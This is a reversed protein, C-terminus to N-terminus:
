KGAAAAPPPLAKLREEAQKAWSFQKYDKVLKEYQQRALDYNHRMEYIQGKHFLAESVFEPYAEFMVIIRSTNEDAAKFKELAQAKNGQKEYREALVLQCRVLGLLAALRAEPTKEQTAVETYMREASEYDKKRERIQAIKVKGQKGKDYWPFTKLVKIFEQEAEADKGERFLIDALGYTASAVAQPDSAFETLVRQYMEGAEQLASADKCADAYDLLMQSSLRVNPDTALAKKFAALAKEKEANKMLFMGESFTLQAQLAPNDVHRAVAKSFYQVAEESTMMRFRVLSFISDAVGEISSLAFESSPFNLMITECTAASELMTQKYVTRQADPLVTPHGMREAKQNLAQAILFLIEPAREQNPDAEFSLWLYNVAADFDELKDKAVWGLFFCAEPVYESQPFEAPLRELAHFMKEFENKEYYMFGIRRLAQVAIDSQPYDRAIQELAAISKEFQGSDNLALSMQFLAYPKLQSDPYRKQFDEFLAIAEKTKKLQILIIGKQYLASDMQEFTDTGKPFRKLLEDIAALAEDPQNASTLSVAKFYLLNPQFHGKPFKDMYTEVTELLSDPQNLDYECVAKLYLADETGKGNPFMEVSEAFYQLATVTNKQVYYLQGISLATREALPADAGARAKFDEFADAAADADKQALCGNIILFAAQQYEDGQTFKLLHRCVAIAEDYHKMRFFADAIRFYATLMLDPSEQINLYQGAVRGLETKIMKFDEGKRMAEGQKALLNVQQVKLDKLVENKPRVNRFYQIAQAYQEADFWTEALSYNSNNALDLNAESKSLQDFIKRAKELYPQADASKGAKIQQLGQKSYVSALLFYASISIPANKFRSLISDLAEKSKDLEDNLYYAFARGYMAYAYMSSKPYNKLFASQLEIAKALNKKREKEQEKKTQGAALRAYCEGTLFESQERMAKDPMREGSLESFLPLAKEYKERQYYCWALDFKVSIINEYTQATQVIKEFLNIAQDYQGKNMAEEGRMALENMDAPAALAAALLFCVFSVAGRSFLSFTTSM